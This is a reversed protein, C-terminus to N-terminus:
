HGQVTERDLVHILTTSPASRLMIHYTGDQGVDDRKPTQGFEGDVIIRTLM